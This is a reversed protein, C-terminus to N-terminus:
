QPFIPEKRDLSLLEEAQNVTIEMMSGRIPVDMIINEDNPTKRFQNLFPVKAPFAKLPLILQLAGDYVATAAMKQAARAQVQQQISEAQFPAGLDLSDDAFGATNGSNQQALEAAKKLTLEDERAKASGLKVGNVEVLEEEILGKKIMKMIEQDELPRVSFGGKITMQEPAVLAIDSISLVGGTTKLNFSGENFAVKRFSGSPSLIALSNLLPLRSRLTLSDGESLSLRGALSVGEPTNTSGSIKLEGSVRGDLYSHYSEQLLVELPVNELAVIGSFEPRLGGAIKVQRLSVKGLKGDAITTQMKVEFEGKEVVLGQENCVLVLEKIQLKRLWNQEFIGGTFQLRWGTGERMALMKSGSISGMTRESYGWTIRTQSSELNQFQMKDFRKTLSTALKAAEEPSEAGAKVDFSMREVTIANPKWRGNFGDLLGMRFRIGTAELKNLYSDDGGNILLHGIMARNQSRSFSRMVGWEADLGAVIKNRLNTKFSAQGSFKVLFFLAVAVIVAVFILLKLFLSLLHHTLVSAGGGAMSFRLQFWFGQKGVWQALRDKFLNTSDPDM